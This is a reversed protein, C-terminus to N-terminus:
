KIVLKGKVVGGDSEIAYMYVGAKLGSTKFSVQTTGASFQQNAAVAVRVGNVNYLSIKAKESKALTVEFTVNDSAPNPLAKISRGKNGADKKTGAVVSSYGIPNACDTVMTSEGTVEIWEIDAFALSELVELRIENVGKELQVSVPTTVAYTKSDKPKPFTVSALVTSGNILVKATEAASSGGGAYSWKLTYSGAAPAEVKWNIGKGATNPLNIVDGGTGTTRLAGDFSCMGVTANDTAKIQVTPSSGNGGGSGEAVFTATLAKNNDMTITVPNTTGTAAGSWGSFLWGSAPIATVTVTEGDTYVGGITSLSGEGVVTTTLQYTAPQNNAVTIKGVGVNAPVITTIDNVDDLTYTYPLNTADWWDCGTQTISNNGSTGTFINGTACAYGEGDFKNTTIPTKVNEYVNNEIKAYAGQRVAFGYDTINKLYNNYFHVAGWRLSPNRGDTNEFFNHHFTVRIQRDEAEAGTNDTHGILVNKMHDHFYNWSVTVYRSGKKIDLLGDYTDVGIGAGIKSHFENHDVWVHRCEDITLADNPYLVEHIKLNRVILNNYERFNLGVNELEANNGLGLVTLNAGRKITVITSSPSTIKGSIYVIQPTNNNERTLAWAELEALTRITISSGGAGGTTTAYGGGNVTAFGKMSYDPSSTNGAM